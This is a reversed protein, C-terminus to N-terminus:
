TFARFAVYQAGDLPALGFYTGRIVSIETEPNGGVTWDSLTGVAAGGFYVLTAGDDASAPSEFSGNLISTDAFAAHNAAVLILSFLGLKLSSTTSNRM